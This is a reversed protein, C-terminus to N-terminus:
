NIRKFAYMRLYKTHRYKKDEFIELFKFGNKKMLNLFWKEPPIWNIISNKYVAISDREKKNLIGKEYYEDVLDFVDDAKMQFTKKNYVKSVPDVLRLEGFFYIFDIKKSRYLKVLKKLGVPKIPKLVIHRVVLYGGPKLMKKLVSVLKKADKTSVLNNFPADGLVVDFFGKSFKMKLWDEKKMINLKSDKYKMLATYKKLMPQSIDVAYTRLGHKIAIDRPEPTAGLVLAKGEKVYKEYFKQESKVPAFLPLRKSREKLGRGKLKWAQTM